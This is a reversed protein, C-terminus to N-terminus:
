LAGRAQWVTMTSSGKENWRRHGTSVVKPPDMKSLEVRRKRVTSPSFRERFEPLLELEEDSLPGNHRLAALIMDQLASLKPELTLAADRSTARDPHRVMDARPAQPAFLGFDLPATNRACPGEASSDNRGM